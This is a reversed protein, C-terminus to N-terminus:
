PWESYQAQDFKGTGWRYRASSSDPLWTARKVSIAVVVFLYNSLSM